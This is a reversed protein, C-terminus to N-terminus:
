KQTDSNIRMFRRKGVKILVNIPASLELDGDSLREQDIYVGGGSILRRAEGNSAALKALVLLKVIWIKGDTLDADGLSFEDIEDPIEKKAFITNFEAEAHEAAAEDYFQACIAKALRAKIAKPHQSGSIMAARMAAIEERPVDTVLEYYTFMLEDSISMIKGFIEKPSENIGIYNGLSKSMKQEGDLGVLLPLTIISQPKLGYEKQLDRGVLLNFKQDTGGLEVDAKLAVSDYGQVLPYMFEIISISKGAKYRKSFDDRELMRAVNYRSTLELVAAFDMPQCWRSNFDVITKQPDLIKFVQTKYTEANALVEERSLKKRTESKGTPDGIMGTFDGILMVVNHGMQQFHRMKRLLVTHGLHIDPATPDFGVKITLPQQTEESKKLKELFEDKPLIEETGRVLLEVDNKVM